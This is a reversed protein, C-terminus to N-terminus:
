SAAVTLTTWAGVHVRDGDHLPVPVNAEIPDAGDNLYTGNASDLDVVSWGDEGAVLLAHSHSVGPDEPPGSLDIQPDIGRSRSHRGILVQGGTLRFRREPFFQPFVMADADPGGMSLVRKHYEHDATVAVQWGTGAAPTAAAEDSGTGPDPDSGADDPDPGASEPEPGDPGPTGTAEDAPDVTSPGGGLDAAVFDYGDVECFRGTRATGCQPCTQPGGGAPAAPEPVPTAAPAAAGGIPAGCDDCYDAATSTHGKPCIPM